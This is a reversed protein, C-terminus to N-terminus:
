EDNNNHQKKKKQRLFTKHKDLNNNYLENLGSIFNFKICNQCNSILLNFENGTIIMIIRPLILSQYWQGGSM